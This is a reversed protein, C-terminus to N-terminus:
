KTTTYHVKINCSSKIFPFWQMSVVFPRMRKSYYDKNTFIFKELPTSPDKDCKHFNPLPPPTGLSIGEMTPDSYKRFSCM